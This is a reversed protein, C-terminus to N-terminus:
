REKRIKFIYIIKNKISSILPDESQLILVNCLWSFSPDLSCLTKVKYCLVICPWLLKIHEELLFEYLSIYISIEQKMTIYIYSYELQQKINKASHNYWISIENIPQLDYLHHDNSWNQSYQLDAKQEKM